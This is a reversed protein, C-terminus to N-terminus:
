PQEPPKASNASGSAWALALLVIIVVGTITMGVALGGPFHSSDVLSGGTQAAVPALRTSAQAVWLGILLGAVIFFTVGALIFGRKSAGTSIEM